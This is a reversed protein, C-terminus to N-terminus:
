KQYKVNLKKTANRSEKTNRNLIKIASRIRFKIYQNSLKRIMNLCEPSLVNFINFVNEEALIHDFKKVIESEHMLNNFNNLFVNECKSFFHVSADSPVTLGGFDSHSHTYAKYYTFSENNDKASKMETRQTKMVTSCNCCNHVLLYKQIWYGAVYFLSGNDTQHKEMLQEIENTEIKIEPPLSCTTNEGDIKSANKNSLSNLSIVNMAFDEQCNSKKSLNLFSNIFLKKFACGFQSPNPNYNFGQSSRINAFFNELCDQQLTRTM